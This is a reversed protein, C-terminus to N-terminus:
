APSGPWLPEREVYQVRFEKIETWTQHGSSKEDTMFAVFAKQIALGEPKGIADMLSKWYADRNDYEDIFMWIELEPNDPDDRFFSRTRTFYLLEPHAREYDIVAKAAALAQDHDTKRIRFQQTDCQTQPTPTATITDDPKDYVSANPDGYRPNPSGPWLPERFGYQIRLDKLETWEIHGTPAPPVVLAAFAANNAASSSDNAMADMLSKWYVDRNDFEDIFMFTEHEPNDPDPRFYSRSRTYYYIEPHAQQYALIESFIAVAKNHDAARITFYQQDIQTQETPQATLPETPTM